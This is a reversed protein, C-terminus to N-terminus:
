ASPRSPVASSTSPPSSSSPTGLDRLLHPGREVFGLERILLCRRCLRTRLPQDRGCSGVEAFLFAEREGLGRGWQGLEWHVDGFRMGCLESARVGSIYALKAM